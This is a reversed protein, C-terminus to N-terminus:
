ACDLLLLTTCTQLELAILLSSLMGPIDNRLLVLGSSIFTILMVTVGTAVGAVLAGATFYQKVTLLYM